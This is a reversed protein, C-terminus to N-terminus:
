ESIHIPTFYSQSPSLILPQTWLAISAPHPPPVESYSHFSLYLHNLVRLNAGLVNRCAITLAQKNNTNNILIGFVNESWM